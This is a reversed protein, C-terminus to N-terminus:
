HSVERTWAWLDIEVSLIVYIVNDIHCFNIMQYRMEWM